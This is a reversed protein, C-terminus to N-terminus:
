FEGGSARARARARSRHLQSSLVLIIGFLRIRACIHRESALFSPPTHPPPLPTHTHPLPLMNQFTMLSEHFRLHSKAEDKFCVLREPGGPPLAPGNREEADTNPHRSPQEGSANHTIQSSNAPPFNPLPKNPLPQTGNAASFWFRVLDPNGRRRAEVSEHFLHLNLYVSGSRNGLVVFLSLLLKFLKAFSKVKKFRASSLLFPFFLFSYFADPERFGACM